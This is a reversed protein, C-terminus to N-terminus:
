KRQTQRGDKIEFGVRHFADSLADRMTSTTNVTGVDVGLEVMTQAIAPSVGSITAECGMLQTAKTIKVLHNAVATDVVGVGSIDMIFIRAQTEAIKALAANMVDRARVSDIIGVIPLLLIGSWIQTVPTSMEMLSKAQATLREEVMSNYTDIVVAIDLHLCKTISELTKSQDEEAAASDNLVESFLEFFMNMGAFYTNPPLGIRAHTEGLKRRKQIYDDDVQGRFFEGWYQDQLNRVREVTERDTFFQEFEPQRELWSYWADILEESRPSVIKHFAKIRMLDDATVRYLELMSQASSHHSGQVAGHGGTM